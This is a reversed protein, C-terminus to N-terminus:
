SGARTGVAYRLSSAAAKRGQRCELCFEDHVMAVGRNNLRALCAVGYRTGRSAKAWTCSSPNGILLRETEKSGNNTSAEFILSAFTLPLIRELRPLLLLLLAVLM